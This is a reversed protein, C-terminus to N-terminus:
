CWWRTFGYILIILPIGFIVLISIPGAYQMTNYSRVRCCM